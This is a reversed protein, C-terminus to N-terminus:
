FSLMETKPFSYIISHVDIKNGTRRGRRKGRRLKLSAQGGYAPRITNKNELLSNEVAM